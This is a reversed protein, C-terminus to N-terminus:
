SFLTTFQRQEESQLLNPNLCQQMSYSVRITSLFCQYIQELRYIRQSHCSLSRMGIVQVRSFKQGLYVTLRGKLGEYDMGSITLLNNLSGGVANRGRCGSGGM